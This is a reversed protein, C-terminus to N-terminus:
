AQITQIGHFVANKSISPAIRIAILVAYNAIEITFHDHIGRGDLLRTRRRETRESAAIWRNCVCLHVVDSGSWNRYAHKRIRSKGADSREIDTVHGNPNYRLVVGQARSNRNAIEGSIRINCIEQKSRASDINSGRNRDRGTHHKFSAVPNYVP